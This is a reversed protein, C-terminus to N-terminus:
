HSVIIHKGNLVTLQGTNQQMTLAYCSANVDGIVQHRIYVIAGTPPVAGGLWTAPNSWNGNAVTIYGVTGSLTYAGLSGYNTVNANPGGSVEIFYTGAPLLLNRVSANLLDAPEFTHLLVNASNFVKLIVDLNARENNPGVSYPTLDFTVNYENTISLKFVDKDTNTEIIGAVSFVNSTATALLNEQGVSGVNPYDDIRYGLGIHNPDPDFPSVYPFAIISLQEQFGPCNYPNPGNSWRSCNKRSSVGMIPAYGIQEGLLGIQAGTGYSYGNGLTACTDNKDVTHGLGLTHGVEHSCAESIAKPNYGLRSDFVFCPNDDGRYFSYFASGGINPPLFSTPTIVVRQRTFPNTSLYNLEDTTVNVNFPRFDEAVINFIKNIQTSNMLSPALILPNSVSAAGGGWPGSTLVQGDFDLYITKTASLLSNLVPIAPTIYTTSASGSMTYSGLSGANLGTDNPGGSVEIYYTGAPLNTNLIFANLTEAQTSINILTNSSNYIKLTVDLNAKENGTGVNFPIVNFYLYSSTTLVIKFYDKDGSTEIIGNQSFTTATGILLNPLTNSSTNSYDDVRYGIGPYTINPVGIGDAIIQLHNLLTGNAIGNWRTCNKNNSDEMIAAFSTEGNGYATNVNARTLGLTIGIQRSCEEALDNGINEFVLCSTSGNYFSGIQNLNNISVNNFGNTATIIIRTRANSNAMSYKAEETTVNVNFPRFDESVINFIKTIQDNTLTSAANYYSFPVGYNWAVNQVNQIIEGDFDLYITKNTTSLSNLIPITPPAPPPPV